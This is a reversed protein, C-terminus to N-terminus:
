VAGYDINPQLRAPRLTMGKDTVRARDREWPENATTLYNGVMLGNAGARFVWDQKEGLVRERGGAILIDKDPMVLRFIAVGKLCDMPDPPPTGELPTGPRANLFNLPVSEVELERLALALEVRQDANEGMGFIGGSCAHMGVERASRITEVSEEYDYTSVINRFNSKATELNHHYRVMGAERLRRMVNFKTRGLSGCVELGLESTIRRSAECIIAIDAENKLRPVAMVMSFARGGMAKVKRARTMIEEVGLLKYEQVGTKDRYHISQSCFKCDDACRGSKANIIGCFAIENGCYYDRADDALAFLKEVDDGEAHIWRLADAESLGERPIPPPEHARAPNARFQARYDPAPPLPPLGAADVAPSQGHAPGPATSNPQPSLAPTPDM